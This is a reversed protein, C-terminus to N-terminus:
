PVSFFVSLRDKWWVPSQLQRGANLMFSYVHRIFQIYISSVPTMFDCGLFICPVFDVQPTPAVAEEKEEPVERAERVTGWPM